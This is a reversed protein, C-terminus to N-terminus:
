TNGQVTYTKIVKGTYFDYQIYLYRGEQDRVAAEWFPRNEELGPVVHLIKGGPYGRRVADLVSQKPVARALTDFYIEKENMWVIVPTGVQNKGMVVAYAQKGRYEDIEDIQAITTREAAWKRAQEEFARQSGVVSSTLDYLFAFALALM